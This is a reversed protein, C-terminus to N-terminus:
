YPYYPRTLIFGMVSLVHHNFKCCTFFGLGNMSLRTSTHAGLTNKSL